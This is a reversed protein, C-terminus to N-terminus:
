DIKYTCNANRIREFIEQFRRAVRQESVNLDAAIKKYSWRKYFRQILLKRDKWSLKRILFDIEEKNDFEEFFNSGPISKGQDDKDM